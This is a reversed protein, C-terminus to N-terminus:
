IVAVAHAHVPHDFGKLTLVGINRMPLMKGACLEAVANSVLMQQPEAHACLRHALQVATGFLDNAHDIPEGAAVGVRLRLPPHPDPIHAAVERLVAMGCKVAGAASVFAAMIGDGTHKVETGNNAALAERVIRDHVNLMAFSVEDGLRQTTDTSGVIDTFLITRTGPDHGTKDPLIVAGGDNTDAVGMFAEAMDPTIEMIRSARLGHSDRHVADAAEATPAHCLCYVKGKRENVWYKHYVVGYKTQIKEDEYHAQVVADSTVGPLDHIDMYMPMHSHEGAELPAYCPAPAAVLRTVGTV